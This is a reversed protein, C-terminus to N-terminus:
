EVTVLLVPVSDRRSDLLMASCVMDSLPLLRYSEEEIGQDRRRTQRFLDLVHAYIGLPAEREEYVSLELFDERAIGHWVANDDRSWVGRMVVKVTPVDRLQFM